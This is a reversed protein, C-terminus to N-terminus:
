LIEPRLGVFVRKGRRDVRCIGGGCLAVSSKLLASGQLFIVCPVGGSHTHGKQEDSM